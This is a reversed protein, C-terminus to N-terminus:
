LCCFGRLKALVDVDAEVENSNSALAEDEDLEVRLGDIKGEFEELKVVECVVLVKAATMEVGGQLVDIDLVDPDLAMVPLVGGSTVRLIEDRVLEELAADRSVVVGIVGTEELVTREVTGLWDEDKDGSRDVEVNYKVVVMTADVDYEVIVELRPLM